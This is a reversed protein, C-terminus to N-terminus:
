DFLQEVLMGQRLKKTGIFFTHIIRIFEPLSRLIRLETEVEPKRTMEQVLNAAEKARIKNLLDMSIGKLLGKTIKQNSATTKNDNNSDIDNDKNDDATATTSTIGLRQKTNELFVEATKEGLKPEVPLANVNPVIDPVSDLRFKPHWRVLEKDEVHIGVGELYRRHHGKTIDLLNAVFLQYRELLHISNMRIDTNYVPTIILQYSPKRNDLISSFMEYKVKFGNSFVTQIQALRKTDFKKGTMREVSDKLKDFTCVEQRKYHMSVITDM